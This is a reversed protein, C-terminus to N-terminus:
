RNAIEQVYMYRLLDNTRQDPYNQEIKPATKGLGRQEMFILATSTNGIVLPNTWLDDCPTLHAKRVWSVYLGSAAV